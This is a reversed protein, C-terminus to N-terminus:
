ASTAQRRSGATGPTLVRNAGDAIVHTGSGHGGAPGGTGSGWDITPYSRAPRAFLFGQLLDCGLLLLVDREDTSEVGEAVVTVGMDRALTIVSRVIKQRIRSRHIGRVLSMDLKVFEPELLAISTLGAYGAGLDDIAIRYGMERLANVRIAVDPVQSLSSRETVELVIRDAYRSLPADVELLRPDLLDLVHLNVFFLAEPAGADLTQATQSRVHRGLDLLRQLREAADLVATAHPLESEGSRMLAEYGLVFQGRPSVIPQFALWLTDLARTFSADLGDRGGNSPSSEVPDSHSELSDRIAM